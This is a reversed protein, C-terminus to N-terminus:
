RTGGRFVLKYSDWQLLASRSLGDCTQIDYLTRPRHFHLWKLQSICTAINATLLMYLVTVVVSVFANLTFQSQWAAMPMGDYMHVVGALVCIAFISGSIHLVERLWVDRRSLPRLWADYRRAFWVSAAARSAQQHDEPKLLPASQQNIAPRSAMVMSTRCDDVWLLKSVHRVTSYAQM